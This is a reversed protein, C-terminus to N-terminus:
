RVVLWLVNYPQFKIRERITLSLTHAKEKFQICIRREDLVHLSCGMGKLEAKYGCAWKGEIKEEYIFLCDLSLLWVHVLCSLILCTFLGWILASCPLGISPFSNWSCVFSTLSITMEVTLLGVFCRALLWSICVSSRTCVWAPYRSAMKTETLVHSDQKTSTDPCTRRSDEIGELMYNEEEMPNGSKQLSFSLPSKWNLFREAYDRPTTRQVWEWRNSSLVRRIIIVPCLM